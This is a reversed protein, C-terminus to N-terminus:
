HLYVKALSHSTILYVLRMSEVRRCNFGNGTGRTVAKLSLRLVGTTLGARFLVIQGLTLVSGSIQTFFKLIVKIKQNNMSLDYIIMININFYREVDEIKNGYQKLCQNYRKSVNDLHEANTM